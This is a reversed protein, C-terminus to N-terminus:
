VVKGIQEQVVKLSGTQERHTVTLTIDTYLLSKYYILADTFDTISRLFPNICLLCYAVPAVTLPLTRSAHWPQLIWPGATQM